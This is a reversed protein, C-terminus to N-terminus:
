IQLINCKMSRVNFIIIGVFLISVCIYSMILVDIIMIVKTLTSM